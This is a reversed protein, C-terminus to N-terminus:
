SLITQKHNPLDIPKSSEMNFIKWFIECYQEQSLKLTKSKRDRIIQIGLVFSAEGMDKMEFQSNLFNKIEEISAFINSAILIDDVYLSLIIFNSGSNWYYVCHVYENAKFGYTTIANHFTYYWQRSSQKLGYLSKKLKYVKHDEGEVKYGNPQVMYIEQKLEGNLFTTKVDMQFLELDLSAVISM